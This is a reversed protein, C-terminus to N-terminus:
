KIIEKANIIPNVIIIQLFAILDNPVFSSFRPLIIITRIISQAIMIAPVLKAYKISENKM